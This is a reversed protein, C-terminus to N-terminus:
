LISCALDFGPIPRQCHLALPNTLLAIAISKKFKDFCRNLALALAVSHEAVSCPSYTPVRVVQRATVCRTSHWHRPQASPQHLCSAMQQEAADLLTM